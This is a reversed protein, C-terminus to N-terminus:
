GLQFQNIALSDLPGEWMLESCWSLTPHECPVMRSLGLYRAFVREQDGKDLEHCWSVLRSRHAFKELEQDSPARGRGSAWEGVRVEGRKPRDAPPRKTWSPGAGTRPPLRCGSFSHAFGRSGLLVRIHQSIAMPGFDLDYGWHVDWDGSFYVLIPPAGVGFHYWPNQGVAMHKLKAVVVGKPPKHLTLCFGFWGDITLTTVELRVHAM